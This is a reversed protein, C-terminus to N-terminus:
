SGMWIVDFPCFLGYMMLILSNCINFIMMLFISDLMFRIFYKIEFINVNNNIFDIDKISLSIIIEYFINIFDNLNMVYIFPYIM